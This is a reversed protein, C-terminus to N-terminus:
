AGGERASRSRGAVSSRVVGSLRPRTAMRSTGEQRPTTKLLRKALARVCRAAPDAPYELVFPKRARAAVRVKDDALVYGFDHVELDLFRRSVHQIRATVNRAERGDRALNCLVRIRGHGKERSVTKVLAYADTRGAPEPTAVVILEDAAAAFHIVNRTIGAGCDFFVYDLGSTIEEFCSVLYSRQTEDLDSVTNVGTSGAVLLVGSETLTLAEAVSVQGVLVHRLNYEPRVGLVLDANGLGVDVDIVAVKKGFDALAVALNTCIHTKGVGGKGSAFAVVRARNSSRQVLKRLAAAQDM